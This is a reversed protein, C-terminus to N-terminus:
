ATSSHSAFISQRETTGRCPSHIVFFSYHFILSVAEDIKGYIVAVRNCVEM